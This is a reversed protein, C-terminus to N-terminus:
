QRAKARTTHKTRPPCARASCPPTAHSSTSSLCSTIRTSAWCSGLLLGDPAWEVGCRDRNERWSSPHIQQTASSSTSTTAQYTTVALFASSTGSSSPLRVDICQHTLIIIIATPDSAAPSPQSLRSTHTYSIRRSSDQALPFAPPLTPRRPLLACVILARM